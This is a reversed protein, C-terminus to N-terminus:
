QPKHPEAVMTMLNWSDWLPQLGKSIYMQRMEDTPTAPMGELYFHPNDPFTRFQAGEALGCSPAAALMRKWAPHDVNWDPINVNEPVLDVAYGFNHASYGGQANTVVAGPETRGQAYLADQQSWTRLGQTVQLNLDPLMQGLQLIRRKLEPHVDGLRAFSTPSWM